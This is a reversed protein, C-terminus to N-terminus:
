NLLNKIETSDKVLKNMVNWFTGDDSAL